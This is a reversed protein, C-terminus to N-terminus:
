SREAKLVRIFVKDLLPFSFANALNGGGLKVHAASIQRDQTTPDIGLWRKGDWVEVWAHYYFTGDWSVLGSALRTPVGGARLITAALIAADRCVGEQTKLIESADRLVGIGSNVRMRSAIYTQVKLAADRVRPEDGFIERAVDKFEQTDSPIYTDPKTWNPLAKGAEKITIGITEDVRPPHVDIVWTEGQKRSTQHQDTPIKANPAGEFEITLRTLARPNELPVDPKISSAEALDPGGNGNSPQPKVGNGEPIMEIGLPGEAKILEGKGDIFLRLTATPDIVEVLTAQVTKDHVTVPSNGRMVVENKVFDVTDSRLVYFEKKVNPGENLVLSLPDDVIPAGKPIELRKTSTAGGATVTVDAHTAGFKASVTQTRGGSRTEFTMEVPRGGKEVWSTSKIEITMATGLMDTSITTVSDGRTLERGNLTGPRSTYSAEGIRMGQLFLGLKTESASSIASTLLLLPILFRRAQM